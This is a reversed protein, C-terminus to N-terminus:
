CVLVGSPTAAMITCLAPALPWAHHALVTLAPVPGHGGLRVVLQAWQCAVRACRPVAGRVIGGATCPERSPAVLAPARRPLEPHRKSVIFCPFLM